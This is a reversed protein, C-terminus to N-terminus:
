SRLDQTVKTQLLSKAFRHRARLRPDSLVAGLTEGLVMVIGLLPLVLVLGAVGAVAGG